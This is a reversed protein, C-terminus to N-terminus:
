CMSDTHSQNKLDVNLELSCDLSFYYCPTELAPAQMEEPSLCLFVHDSIMRSYQLERPINAERGHGIM